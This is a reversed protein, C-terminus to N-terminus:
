STKPFFKRYPLLLGLLTLILFFSIAIIEFSTAGISSVNAASALFWVPLFWLTYWAWKEGRRYATYSIAVIFVGMGIFLTGGARLFFAVLNSFEPNSEELEGFTMGITRTAVTPDEIGMLAPVGSVIQVLGVVFLLIWAHKLYAKEAM